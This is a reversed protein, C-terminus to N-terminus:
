GASNHFMLGADSGEWNKCQFYHEDLFIMRSIHSVSLGYKGTLGVPCLNFSPFIDYGLPVSEYRSFKEREKAFCDLFNSGLYDKIKLLPLFTRHNRQLYFFDEIFKRVVNLLITTM